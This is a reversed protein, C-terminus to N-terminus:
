KVPRLWLNTAKAGHTCRIREFTVKTGGPQSFLRVGDGLLVPVIHVFM